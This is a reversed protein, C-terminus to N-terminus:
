RAAPLTRAGALRDSLSRGRPAIVTPLGAFLVALLSALWLRFSQGFSLPEGDISSSVIGAFSMGPTQGWFALPLVTYLLSFLLLGLATPLLASPTIESGLLRAGALMLVFIGGHLALDGVGAVLRRGIGVRPAAPTDGPLPVARLLREDRAAGRSPDIASTRAAEGARSRPDAAPFLPLAEPAPEAPAGRETRASRRPAAAREEGEGAADLPLDFLSPEDSRRDQRSM